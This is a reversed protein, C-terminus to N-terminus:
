VGMLMTGLGTQSRGSTRVYSGFAFVSAGSGVSKGSDALVDDVTLPRQHFVSCAAVARAWDPLFSACCCSLAHFARSSRLFRSSATLFSSRDTKSQVKAQIFRCLASSLHQQEGRM